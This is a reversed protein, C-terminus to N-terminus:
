SRKLEIKEKYKVADNIIKGIKNKKSIKIVAKKSSRASLAYDGEVFIDVDENAYEAPLMFTINSKHIKVTFNINEGEGRSSSEQIERVDINLGLKKEIKEINSGNRGIISSRDKEPVFVICKNNSVVDVKVNNSYKQFEQKITSAALAHTPATTEASVPVVVTEEGYSYIEFELRGTNFDHVVVVPRALDQEFMGSPVKVEMTLSFVNDIQGNKIFIVTDVIHPIVGLEIRGIFRQIADITKTAHMVGIMGVGSLRLDAFLRFDETNRMEDFITYDPRSLLLIDHIEQNSGHSISYQTVDDPLVLDRPAEVTKIVKNTSAYFEALAQAFTTKGHGPAGSILMGEAQEYLRQMLKENINYDKLNLHKVPRVATIEYGDAFPPRTIVIRYNVLQIITSGRREIEVFGDKRSGAEETIHKALNKVEEGTMKTKSINVYEWAGPMGKKAKPVCNEKIHVSMTNKDFFKALVLEKEEEEPFEYLIVNIGKSEAVIAQVKDATILTGKERLALERILSDIEGSKARRIEFDGPREGKFQLIFRHKKGLERLKKIEELGLHGTERGHNAQAELEAIVAEHFVISKPKLKKKEIRKSVIGEIIISTDPILKEVKKM